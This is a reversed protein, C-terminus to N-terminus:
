VGLVGGEGISFSKQLIELDKGTLGKDVNSKIINKERSM